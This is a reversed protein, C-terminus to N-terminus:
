RISSGILWLAILVTLLVCITAGMRVRFVGENVQDIVSTVRQDNPIAPERIWADPVVDEPYSDEILLRNLRVLAEGEPSQRLLNRVSESLRVHGFRHENYISEGRIINNLEDVLFQLLVYDTGTCVSGKCKPLIRRLEPSFRSCLYASVCDSQNCLKTAFSAPNRIDTLSFGLSHRSAWVLSVLSTWQLTRPLRALPHRGRLFLWMLVFVLDRWPERLKEYDARFWQPYTVAYVAVGVTWASAGLVFDITAVILLVGNALKAVLFARAVSPLVLTSLALWLLLFAFRWLVRQLTDVTSQLENASTFFRARPAAEITKFAAITTVIVM